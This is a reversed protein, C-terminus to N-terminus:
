NLVEVKFDDFGKTTAGATVFFGHKTVLYNFGEVASARQVGNIYVTIATGIMVVSILDGAALTVGTDALTTLVGASRKGLICTSGGAEGVYLENADDLARVILRAQNAGSGVLRATVRVDAAGADLVVRDNAGSSTYVRAYNNYVGWTGAVPQWVQGTDASGLTTTNNVRNFSDVAVARFSIPDVRFNDFNEISTAGYTGIGHKTETQFTADSASLIRSGNLFVVISPGNLIASVVDGNAPTTAYNGLSTMVGGVTKRIEYRDAQAKVQIHNGSNQARVVLRNEKSPSSVVKNTVTVKGDSVGSDVVAIVQISNSDSGTRIATGNSIGWKSNMPIWAQGTDATGLSDPNDARNFSDVVIAKDDGTLAYVSFDDVAQSPLNRFGFGHKTATMNFDNDVKVAQVGNVFVTISTGSLRVRVVDRESITTAYSGLSTQTGSDVKIVEYKSTNPNSQVFIQNNGDTYRFTLRTIDRNTAFTAQVICDSLGSDVVAANTTGNAKLMQGTNSVVGFSVNTDYLWTQGTDTVGLPANDRNFSDYVALGFTQFLLGKIGAYQGTVAKYNRSLAANLIIGSKIDLEM